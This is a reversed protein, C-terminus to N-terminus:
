FRHFCTLFINRQIHVYTHWEFQIKINWAHILMLGMSNLIFAKILVQYAVLSQNYSGRRGWDGVVLFSLSGDHQLRHEFRQLEAASLRLCAIFIIHLLMLKKFPIQVGMNIPQHDLITKSKQNDVWRHRMKYLSKYRFFHLYNELVHCGRCISDHDIAIITM